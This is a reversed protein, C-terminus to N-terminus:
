LRKSSQISLYLTDTKSSRNLRTNRKLQEELGRKPLDQRQLWVISRDFSGMIFSTYNKKAREYINLLINHLYVTTVDLDLNIGIRAEHSVEIDLVAPEVKCVKNPHFNPSSNEAIDESEKVRKGADDCQPDTEPNLEFDISPVTKNPQNPGLTPVAM